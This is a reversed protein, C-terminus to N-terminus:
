IGTAVRRKMIYRELLEKKHNIAIYRIVFERFFTINKSSLSFETVCGRSNFTNGVFVNQKERTISSVGCKLFNKISEELKFLRRRSHVRICCQPYKPRKIRVDGDGDIVGALYSGFLASNKLIWDPPHVQKFDIKLKCFLKLLNKCGFKYDYRLFGKKDTLKFM